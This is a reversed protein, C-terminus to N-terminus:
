EPVFLVRARQSGHWEVLEVLYFDGLGPVTLSEGLSVWGGSHVSDDVLSHVSLNTGLDWPYGGTGSAIIFFEDEDHPANDTCIIVIGKDMLAPDIEAGANVARFPNSM